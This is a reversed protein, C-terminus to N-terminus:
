IGLRALEDQTLESINKIVDWDIEAVWRKNREDYEVTGEVVLDDRKGSADEDENYFVLRLGPRLEIGYKALDRNTGLTTLLLRKKTDCKMFDAYILDV